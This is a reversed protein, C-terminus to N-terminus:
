QDSGWHQKGVAATGHGGEGRGLEKSWIIGSAENCDGGGGSSCHPQAGSGWPLKHGCGWQCHIEQPPVGGEGKM